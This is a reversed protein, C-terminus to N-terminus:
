GKAKRLRHPAAVAAVAVSGEVLKGHLVYRAIIEQMVRDGVKDASTRATVADFVPSARAANWDLILKVCQPHNKAMAFELVSTYRKPAQTIRHWKKPKKPGM